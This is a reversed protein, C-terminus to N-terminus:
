ECWGRAHEMIGHMPKELGRAGLCLFTPLNSHWQRFAQSRALLHAQESGQGGQIAAM